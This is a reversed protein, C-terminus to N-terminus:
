DYYAMVCRRMREYEQFKRNLELALSDDLSVTQTPSAMRAGADSLNSFAGCGVAAIMAAGMGCADPESSVLLDHEVASALLRCWFESRSAGGLIRLGQLSFGNDTFDSLTRRVNFAVGEMIARALDFRDHELSLGTFAARLNRNWLPYTAGAPYPFYFLNKTKETRLAAISDVERFSESVFNEKLWQLSSGSGILSAMNGYLGTVPHIGPAIFSRSFVPHDDVGLVVWTTGASILLEGRQAAGTGISACYQDHAGNYVPTGALLGTSQAARASLGGVLSAAPLIQPLEDTRAGILSLIREDYRGTNIDFIQRICANSPDSVPRDTLFLNMYELTSLFIMPEGSALTRKFYLIKAADLTPTIRWGTHRYLYTEGLARALEDAEPQSRSDMWTLANGLPHGDRTVAATSAGQTSLSIGAIKEPPTGEMADRISACGYVVWDDANQEIKAGDSIVRYGRYGKRIVRGIEDVLLAKAGTTGIDLGIFYMAIRRRHGGGDPRYTFSVAAKWLRFLGLGSEPWIRLIRNRCADAYQSYLM